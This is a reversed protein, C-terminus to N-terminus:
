RSDPCHGSVSSSREKRNGNRVQKKIVALRRAVGKKGITENGQRRSLSRQCSLVYGKIIKHRSVFENVHLCPCKRKNTSLSVTPTRGLTKDNLRKRRSKCDRVWTTGRFTCMWRFLFRRHRWLGVQWIKGILRSNKAM